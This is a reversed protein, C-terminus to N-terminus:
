RSMSSLDETKISAGKGNKEPVIHVHACVCVDCLM